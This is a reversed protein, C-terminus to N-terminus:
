TVVLSISGSLRKCKSWSLNHLCSLSPFEFQVASFLIREFGRHTEIGHDAMAGNRRM